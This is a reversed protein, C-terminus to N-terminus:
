HHRPTPSPLIASTTSSHPTPQPNGAPFGIPPHCAHLLMSACPPTSTPPLAQLRLCAAAASLLASLSYQEGAAVQAVSLKPKKPAKPQKPKAAAAVTTTTSSAAPEDDGSDDEQQQPAAEVELDSFGGKYNKKAEKAAAEKAAFSRDFAAFVPDVAVGLRDRSAEAKKEDGKKKKEETKSKVTEWQGAKKSQLYM